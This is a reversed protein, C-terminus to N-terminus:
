DESAEVRSNFIVDTFPAITSTSISLLYLHNQGSTIGSQFQITKPISGLDIKGYYCQHGSSAPSTATGALAFVMDALITYLNSTQWNYFSSAAASQLINGVQPPTINDNPHWQFLILRTTDYVDSNEQAVDINVFLKRIKIADGIRSNVGAGQTFSTLRFVNGSSTPTLTLPTDLFKDASRSRISKQKGNGRVFHFYSNHLVTLEKSPIKEYAETDLTRTQQSRSVKTNKKM